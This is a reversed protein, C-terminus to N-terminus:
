KDNDNYKGFRRQFAEIMEETYIDNRKLPVGSQIITGDIHQRSYFLHTWEHRIYNSLREEPTAFGDLVPGNSTFGVVQTNNTKDTSVFALNDTPAVKGGIRELGLDHVKEWGGEVADESAKDLDVNSGILIYASNKGNSRGFERKSKVKDSKTISATVKVNLRKFQENILTMSKQYTKMQAPSVRGVAQVKISATEQFIGSHDVAGTETRSDITTYGNSYEFMGDPDINRLPNDFAYRYPSWSREKEALPDAVGCRGVTLRLM